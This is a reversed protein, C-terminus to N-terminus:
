RGETILAPRCKLRFAGRRTSKAAFVSGIGGYRCFWSRIAAAAASPQGAAFLWCSRAIKGAM